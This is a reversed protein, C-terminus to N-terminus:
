NHCPKNQMNAIAATSLHLKAYNTCGYKLKIILQMCTIEVLSLKPIMEFIEQLDVCLRRDVIKTDSVMCSLQM